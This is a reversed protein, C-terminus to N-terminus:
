VRGALRFHGVVLEREKNSYFNCPCLPRGVEELNAALGTIVADTVGPDPHAATGSKARYHEVSRLIKRVSEESPQSRAM